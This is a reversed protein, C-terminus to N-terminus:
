IARGRDRRKYEEEARSVYASVQRNITSMKKQLYLEEITRKIAMKDADVSWRFDM